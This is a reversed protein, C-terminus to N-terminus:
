GASCSCLKQENTTDGCTSATAGPMHYAFRCTLGVNACITTCTSAGNHWTATGETTASVLALAVTGGANPLTITRDSTPDVLTLVTENADATAGEFRISTKGHFHAFSTADTANDSNSDVCWSAGHGSEVNPGVGCDSASDVFPDWAVNWSWVDTSDAANRNHSYSSATHVVADSILKRAGSTNTTAICNTVNACHMASISVDVDATNFMLGNEANRAYNDVFSLRNNATGEGRYLRDSGSVGTGVFRNASVVADTSGNLELLHVGASTAVVDNGSVVLGSCSDCRTMVEHQGGGSNGDGAIRATNGILVAHDVRTGYFMGVGSTAAALTAFQVTNGSVTVRRVFNGANNNTFQLVSTRQDTQTSTIANGSITVGEISQGTSSSSLVFNIFALGSGPSGASTSTVTNDAITLDRIHYSGVEADIMNTAPQDFTNGIIRTGRNFKTADSSPYGGFELCGKGRGGCKSFRSNEVLATMPVPSLTHEGAGVFECASFRIREVDNTADYNSKVSARDANLMRVREFAVDDVGFGLSFLHTSDLPCWRGSCTATASTQDLDCKNPDGALLQSYQWRQSGGNVTLDTIQVRSGNVNIYAGISNTTDGNDVDACVGDFDIVTAHMGAGVLRWDNAKAILTRANKVDSVAGVFRGPALYVTVGAGDTTGDGDLDRVIASGACTAGQGLFSCTGAVIDDYFELTADGDYDAIYRADATGDRNTDFDQYRGNFEIAAGGSISELAPVPSLGGSGNTAQLSGAAGTIAPLTLSPNDLVALSGLSVPDPTTTVNYRRTWV